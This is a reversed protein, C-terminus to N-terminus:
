DCPSFCGRSGTVCCHQSCNGAQWCTQDGVTWCFIECSLAASPRPLAMALLTVALALLTLRAKRM